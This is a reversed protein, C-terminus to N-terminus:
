SGPGRGYKNPGANSPLATLIIIVLYSVISLTGGVLLVWFWTFSEWRVLWGVTPAVFTSWALSAVILLTWKGSRGTDHLRRTTVGLMPLATAVMYGWFLVWGITGALWAVALTVIIIGVQVLAFWWFEARSARGEFDQYRQLGELYYGLTMGDDKGGPSTPEFRATSSTSRSLAKGCDRCYRTDDDNQSECSKCYSGM